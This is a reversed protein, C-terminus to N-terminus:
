EQRGSLKDLKLHDEGTYTQRLFWRTLAGSTKLGFRVFGFTLTQSNNKSLYFHHIANKPSLFRGVRFVVDNRQFLNNVRAKFLRKYNYQKGKSLM